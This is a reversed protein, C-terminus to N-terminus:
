LMFIFEFVTILLHGGTFREVVQFFKCTPFSHLSAVQFIPYRAQIKILILLKIDGLLPPKLHVVQTSFREM